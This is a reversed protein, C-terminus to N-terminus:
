FLRGSSGIRIWNLGTLVRVEIEIHNMRKGEPKGVYIELTEWM